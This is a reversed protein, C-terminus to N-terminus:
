GTLMFRGSNRKNDVVRKLALFLAPVRQVEDIIVRAPLEAVYGAPDTQAAARAIDDDFTIYAYGLEDGVQRALTSKGCQRPGHILVIPSDALSVKLLSAAFRQYHDAEAKNM